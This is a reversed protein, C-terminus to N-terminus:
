IPKKWYVLGDEGNYYGKRRGLLQFGASEYLRIAAQNSARVELTAWRCGAARAQSLLEELIRRGLGRRRHAPDVALSIIHAEEEIRWLIGFGVLTGPSSLLSGCAGAPEAVAGIVLSTPRELEARYGQEGWHGGYCRRDLELLQPLAAIDLVQLRYGMSSLRARQM